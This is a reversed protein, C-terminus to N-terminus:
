IKFRLGPVNAFACASENRPYDRMPEIIQGSASL